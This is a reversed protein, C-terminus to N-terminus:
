PIYFTGNNSTISECGVASLIVRVIAESTRFYTETTPGDNWTNGNDESYEWQYSLDSGNNAYAEVFFLASCCAYSGHQTTIIIAALNSPTVTSTVTPTHSPTQTATPSITPTQTATNTPTTTYTPTQTQTPTVSATNTPTETNTPTFTPTVTPTSTYSPTVTPTSTHTPTVTQTPTPSLDVECCYLDLKIPLRSM